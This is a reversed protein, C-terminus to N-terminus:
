KQPQAPNKSKADPNSMVDVLAANEAKNLNSAKNFESQAEATKGMSRYLRGLRMHINVDDSKLAEAAKFETLAKETEGRDAYIIGMDLRGMSLAPDSKVLKELIAEADKARNLHIYSDALYLLAQTHDPTNELEAQFQQAAEQYQVQKWLLYGLGFHVNPEKPNTQVAARFEQTAGATDKMEDLAEGVLIDAEASEANQAVMKHYSDLVCPYDKSFLCSHALALLLPLNQADHDAAQRLYPVASVYEGLGYHSMGILVILRQIDPSTPPQSKLLPTFTEIAQKYQGNKFLALGLNLSLGPMAPQLAQAQRYYRIAESYNGRRAELLGLRALPGPDNPNAKSAAILAAESDTPSQPQAPASTTQSAPLPASLSAFGIVSWIALRCCVIGRM